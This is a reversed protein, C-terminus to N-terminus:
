AEAGNDRFFQEVLSARERTYDLATKGAKDTANIDAGYAILLTMAKLRGSGFARTKAYMLPTTGNKNSLNPDAGAKLLAELVDDHGDAASAILGTWGYANRADVPTGTALASVVREASGLRCLAVFKDGSLPGANESTASRTM